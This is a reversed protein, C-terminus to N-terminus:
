YKTHNKFDWLVKNYNTKSKKDILNKILLIYKWSLNIIIFTLQSLSSSLYIIKKFFNTRGAATIDDYGM